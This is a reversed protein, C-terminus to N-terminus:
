GDGPCGIASPGDFSLMSDAFQRQGRDHMLGEFPDSRLLEVLEDLRRQDLGRHPQVESDQRVRHLGQHIVM